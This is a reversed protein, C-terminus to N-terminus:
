RRGDEPPLASDPIGLYGAVARIKAKIIRVNRPGMRLLQRQARPLGELAPNAFAYNMKVPQV